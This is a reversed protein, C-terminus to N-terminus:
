CAHGGAGVRGGAWEVAGGLLVFKRLWVPLEVSGVLASYLQLYSHRSHAFVLLILIPLIFVLSGIGVRKFINMNTHACWCLTYTHSVMRHRDYPIDAAANGSGLLNKSVIRVARRYCGGEM